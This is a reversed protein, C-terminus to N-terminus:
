KQERVKEEILSYNKGSLKGTFEYELGVIVVGYVGGSVAIHTYRDAAVELKIVHLTSNYGTAIETKEIVRGTIPLATPGMPLKGLVLVILCAVIGAFLGTSFSDRNVM